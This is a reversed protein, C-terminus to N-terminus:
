QWLDRLILRLATPIGVVLEVRIGFILLSADVSLNAPGYQPHVYSGIAPAYLFAGVFLRM